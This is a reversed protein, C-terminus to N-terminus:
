VLIDLKTGRAPDAPVKVVARDADARALPKAAGPATWLWYPLPPSPRDAARTILMIASSNM